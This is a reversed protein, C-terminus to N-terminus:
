ISGDLNLAKIKTRMQIALSLTKNLVEFARKGAASLYIGVFFAIKSLLCLM